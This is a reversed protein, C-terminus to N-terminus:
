SWDVEFGGKTVRVKPPKNATLIRIATFGGSFSLLAGSAVLLWLKSTPDPDMIAAVVMWAGFLTMGLAILVGVWERVSLGIQKGMQLITQRQPDIGVGADDILFFAEKNKYATSLRALWGKESTRITIESV